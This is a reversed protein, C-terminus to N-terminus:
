RRELCSAAFRRREASLPKFTPLCRIIGPFAYEQHRIATPDLVPYQDMSPYIKGLIEDMQLIFNPNWSGIYHEVPLRTAARTIFEIPKAGV